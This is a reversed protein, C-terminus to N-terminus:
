YQSNDTVAMFFGIQYHVACLKGTALTVDLMDTSTTTRTKQITLNLPDQFCLHRSWATTSPSIRMTQGTRNVTVHVLKLEIKENM